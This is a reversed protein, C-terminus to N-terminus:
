EWAHRAQTNGKASPPEKPNPTASKASRLPTKRTREAGIAHGVLYLKLFKM